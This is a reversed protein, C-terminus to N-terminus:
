KRGEDRWALIEEVSVSKRASRERRMLRVLNARQEQDKIPVLRAVPAYGRAIIIEEGAEVNVLLESLHTKAEGVKVTRTMGM